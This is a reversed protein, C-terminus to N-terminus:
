NINNYYEETLKETWITPENGYIAIYSVERYPTSSHWHAIDKNSKIVDLCKRFFIAKYKNIKPM